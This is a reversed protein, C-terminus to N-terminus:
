GDILDQVAALTRAFVQEASGSADLVQVRHPQDEAIGLFASRLGQQFALGRKEFRDEGGGRSGTRALALAPDMDYVLTRHPEIRIMRRHLADVEQRLPGTGQYARTSDAFRDCIVIEGRDLAPLILREVHDRRAATFLLVETEASWADPEGEVLLHRIREAGPTGGPERTEVVMRGLGRLHSALRRAQTSKGAGDIGEVTLFLGTESAM